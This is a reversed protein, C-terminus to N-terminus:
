ADDDMCTAIAQARARDVDLCVQGFHAAWKEQVMKLIYVDRQKPGAGVPVADFAQMYLEFHAVLFGALYQEATGQREPNGRPDLVALSPDVYGRRRAEQQGSIVCLGEASQVGLQGLEEPHVGGSNVHTKQEDMSMIVHEDVTLQKAVVLIDAQDHVASMAMLKEGPVPGQTVLDLHQQLFEEEEQVVPFLAEVKHGVAKATIGVATGPGYMLVDPNGTPEWGLQEAAETQTGWDRSEVTQTTADRQRGTVDMQGWCPLTYSAPWCWTGCWCITAHTGGLASM